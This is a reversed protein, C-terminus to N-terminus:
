EQLLVFEKLVQFARRYNGEAQLALATEIAQSSEDAFQLRVAAIESELSLALERETDEDQEQEHATIIVEVAQEKTEAIIEEVEVRVEASIDTTTSAVT